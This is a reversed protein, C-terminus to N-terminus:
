LAKDTKIKHITFYFLRVDFAVAFKNSPIFLAKKLTDTLVYTRVARVQCVAWQNKKSNM